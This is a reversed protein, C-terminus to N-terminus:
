IDFTCPLFPHTRKSLHSCVTYVLSDSKGCSSLKSSSSTFQNDLQRDLMYTIIVLPIRDLSDVKRNGKRWFQKDSRNNESRTFHSTFILQIMATFSSCLKCLLFIKVSSPLRGCPMERVKPLYFVSRNSFLVFM